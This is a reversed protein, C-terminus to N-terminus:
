MLDNESARASHESHQSIVVEPKRGGGQFHVLVINRLRQWFKTNLIIVSTV